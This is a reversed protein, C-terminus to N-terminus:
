KNFYLPFLSGPQNGAPSLSHAAHTLKPVAKFKVKGRAM